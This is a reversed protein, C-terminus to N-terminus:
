EHGLYSLLSVKVGSDHGLRGLIQIFEAIQHEEVVPERGVDGVVVESGDGLLADLDPFVDVVVDLVEDSGVDPSIRLPGHDLQVHGHDDPHLPAALPKQGLHGFQVSRQDLQLEVVHTPPVFRLPNVPPRRPEIGNILINGLLPQFSPSHGMTRRPSGGRWGDFEVGRRSRGCRSM